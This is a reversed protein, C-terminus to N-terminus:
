ILSNFLQLPANFFCMNEGANRLPVPIMASSSNNLNTTITPATDKVEPPESIPVFTVDLGDYDLKRGRLFNLRRTGKKPRGRGKPTEIKDSM